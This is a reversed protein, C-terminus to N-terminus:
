ALELVGLAYMLMGQKLMDIDMKEDFGHPNGRFEKFNPGFAVTNPMLKAYTGGGLAVPKDDRDTVDKFVKQLKEVLPHEKPFYLPANHNEKVFEVNNERGIKDLITDLKKENTTVPYRINFKVYISSKKEEIIKVIGCSLTLDGTEENKTEINLGSGDTEIGVVKDMFNVFRKLSDEEPIVRNLFRFLWTIPNVGRQPSSAHAPIGKCIVELYSEKELVEFKCPTDKFKELEKIIKESLDKKLFVKAEEPVVNSRTGGVIDLISTKEKLFSDKFSFTYIGKESFVVPFQGDPTFAYKPAKEKSLYYKIDEDGSEENTGFIIRVRQNFTPVCEKLAKMSHLASIIPGKNDLAGRSIMNKGVIEGSFPPVSWKSHEGEPVVDIHGLVGIYEEGEGFEAYGIYNDLNVTKFGLDKAIKLTEELGKKLGLGFPAGNTSEEKVTKIKVIKQIDKLTEQFHEDIYHELTKRTNM